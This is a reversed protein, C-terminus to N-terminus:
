ELFKKFFKNFMYLRDEYFENFTYENESLTFMMKGGVGHNFNFVDHGLEHYLVYWKKPKSSIKWEHPNVSISILDDNDMARSVALVGEDNLDFDVKIECDMIREYSKITNQYQSIELKSKNKEVYDLLYVAFDIRFNEIMEELDFVNIKSIDIMGGGLGNKIKESLKQTEDTKIYVFGDEKWTKSHIQNLFGNFTFWTTKFENKNDILINGNGGINNIFDDKSRKVYSQYEEEYMKSFSNELGNFEQPIKHYMRISSQSLYSVGDLFVVSNEVFKGSDSNNKRSSFGERIGVYAILNDEIISKQINSFGKSRLYDNVTSENLDNWNNQGLLVTSIILTFFSLFVRM